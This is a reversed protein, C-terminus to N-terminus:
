ISIFHTHTFVALMLLMLLGSGYIIQAYEKKQTSIIISISLLISIFIALSAYLIQFILLNKVPKIQKFEIDDAKFGAVLFPNVTTAHESLLIVMGDEDTKPTIKTVIEKESYEEEEVTVEKEETTNNLVEKKSNKIIIEEEKETITNEEVQSTQYHNVMPTGFLQVVYFTKYGKYFGEVAAVGIETYNKEMMNDRHLPSEMWANVVEASDNFYIALNEGAHIYDYGAARFWHWPSINEEPSFHAFYEKDKMHEAKLRAAEDLVPNRKLTPINEHERESNTLEVIISPLITSALYDAYNQLTQSIGGVSISIGVLILIGLLSTKQLPHLGANRLNKSISYRLKNMM